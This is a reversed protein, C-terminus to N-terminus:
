KRSEIKQGKFNEIIKLDYKKIYALKQLEFNDKLVYM